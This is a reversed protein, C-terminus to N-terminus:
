LNVCFLKVHGKVAVNHFM